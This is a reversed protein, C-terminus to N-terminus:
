LFLEPFDREVVALVQNVVPDYKSNHLLWSISMGVGDKWFVPKGGERLYIRISGKNVCSITYNRDFNNLYKM